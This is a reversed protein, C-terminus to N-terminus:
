HMIPTLPAARKHASIALCFCASLVPDILRRIQLEGPRLALAVNSFSGFEPVM